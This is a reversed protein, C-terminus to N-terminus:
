FVWGCITYKIEIFFMCLSSLLLLLAPFPSFSTPFYFCYDDLCKFTNQERFMSSQSCWSCKFCSKLFYEISRIVYMSSAEVVVYLYNQRMWIRHGLYKGRWCCWQIELVMFHFLAITICDFTFLSRLVEEKCDFADSKMHNHKYCVEITNWLWAILCDWGAYSSVLCQM